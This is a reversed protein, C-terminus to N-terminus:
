CMLHADYPVTLTLVLLITNKYFEIWNEELCNNTPYM